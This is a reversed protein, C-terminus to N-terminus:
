KEEKLFTIMQVFDNVDKFDQYVSAFRVYSVPDIELLSKMIYQGIKQSSIETESFQELQRTISTVIKEVQDSSVQRKHVAKLISLKIKNRDLPQIRGDKKIVHVDRLQIHEFTTFRSGCAECVRRRRIATQDDTTRSDKVATNEHTCFPCRM